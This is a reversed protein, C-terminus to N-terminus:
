KWQGLLALAARDYNKQQNYAEALLDLTKQKVQESPQLDLLQSCVSIAQNHQGLQLCVEALKLAIKHSLDGPKALVLAESLKKHALNLNSKEIYCDSLEFYIQAKLQTDLVYDAKDGLIAIAKDVLGMARLARSKLLLIEISEQKSLMVSHIDELTDLAQVFNGQQIYGEVLASVTGIYDERSLRSPGGQLAYQFADCAAESDGSALHNKGMLFYASYLDKDQNDRALTIYRTLWKTASEYEKMENFCKGAGFAAVIQSETSFSLNYVKSYLRAAEAVSGAKATADALCLYAKGSIDTDPYQEVLQKLDQRAGAYDHLSNKLKSSNLLAFPALPSRSFRNAVLKYEAISEAPQGKSAHLVGLAFHANAFRPDEPLSLLFSQWLSVAEESLVSIHESVHSYRDPNLINVVGKEDMRALLGACGAATTVSRQTTASSLHLHVLRNRIGIEDTALDWHIDIASNAALKALLEEVPADNCTVFYDTQGDTRDRKQIQPGLIAQNLYQSGSNLFTRLQSEDLNTLFGDTTGPTYWLEEPLDKETDCLSLVKRTVAEAALFHCDRKLLLAWDKDFDIADILAIAQYAKIRANLYQKKRMELLSCHYYAVVRVAPSNSKLVKRFLQNVQTYDATREMCFALQLKLFDRMLDEEPGAPLSDHLKEYVGSAQVYDGNLYFTQAVKLSLPQTSDLIPEPKRSQQPTTHIANTVPTEPMQTQRFNSVMQGAPEPLPKLVAYLLVAAILVIAAAIAKQVSSFRKSLVIAAAFAKQISPFRVIAAALAKQISPFRVIAAAFAKQVSPFRKYEIQATSIRGADFSQMTSTPQASELSKYFDEDGAFIQQASLEECVPGAFLESDSPAEIANDPALEEPSHETNNENFRKAMARINKVREHWTCSLYGLDTKQNEITM